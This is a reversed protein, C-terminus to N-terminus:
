SIKCLTINLKYDIISTHKQSNCSGCLPQINDINNSGGCSLPIIHDETLKIFPEQKKCCLCMYNYKEKLAQWEKLSHEGIAGRERNFRQRDWHRVLERNKKRYERIFVKKNYAKILPDIKKALSMKERSELSFVQKARKDKIKLIVEESRLIGKLRKGNASGLCARSCFKREKGGKSCYSSFSIGCETCIWDKKKSLVNSM